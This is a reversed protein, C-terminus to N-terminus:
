STVKEKEKKKKGKGKERKEFSLFHNVNPDKKEAESSPVGADVPKADAM